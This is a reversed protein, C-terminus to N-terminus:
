GAYNDSCHYRDEGRPDHDYLWQLSLVLEEWRVYQYEFQFGLNPGGYTGNKWIDYVLDTFKHIADLVRTADSPEAEVYQQLITPPENAIRVESLPADM